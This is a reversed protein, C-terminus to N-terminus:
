DDSVARLAGRLPNEALRRFFNGPEPLKKEKESHVNNVSREECPTRPWAHFFNSPELLKRAKTASFWYTFM